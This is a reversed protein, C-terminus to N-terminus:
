KLAEAVQQTVLRIGQPSLHYDVQYLSKPSPDKLFAPSTDVVTVGLRTLENGIMRQLIFPEVADTPNGQHEASTVLYARSSLVQVKTPFMVVITRKAPQQSILKLLAKFHPWYSSYPQPWYNFRYYQWDPYYPNLAKGRELAQPDFVILFLKMIRPYFLEFAFTGLRFKNIWVPMWSGWDRGPSITAMGPDYKSFPPLFHHGYVQKRFPLRIHDSKLVDGHENLYVSPRPILYPTSLASMSYDNGINFLIIRTNIKFTEKLKEYQFYFHQPDYGPVGVNFCKNPLTKELQDCFTDSTELGFGFANSDGQLLFDLVRSAPYDHSNRHGLADTSVLYTQGSKSKLAHDVLNSIPYWGLIPDTRFGEWTGERKGLVIHSSILFIVIWSIIILNAYKCCKKYRMFDYAFFSLLLACVVYIVYEWRLVLCLKLFFFVLVLLFLNLISAALFITKKSNDQYM